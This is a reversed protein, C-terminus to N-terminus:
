LLSKQSSLVRELCFEVDLEEETGCTVTSGWHILFQVRLSLTKQLGPSSHSPLDECGTLGSHETLAASPDVACGLSGTHCVQVKDGWLCPRPIM